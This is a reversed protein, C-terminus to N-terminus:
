QFKCALEWLEYNQELLAKELVKLVCPLKYQNEPKYKKLLCAGAVFMAQRLKEDFDIINGYYYIGLHRLLTIYFTDDHELGLEDSKQIMLLLMWYRQIGKINGVSNQIKSFNKEYWKYDYVVEPVYTFKKCERYLLFQIISDEYWYGTFFRVNEFLTRKYIKGWPYGPLSMINNESSHNNLLEQPYIYEKSSLIKRNKEKVLRYSGIVIDSNDCYANDLLKEIIQNSVIDDCDMFMVYKGVANNLGTNRAGAIGQNKQYIVRCKENKEYKKLITKTEENSGDDVLIIEYQYKTVQYVMSDLTAELIDEHNYVPIIVSCDIKVDMPKNDIVPESLKYPLKSELIKIAEEEAINIDGKKRVNVSKLILMLMYCGYLINTLFLTIKESKLYKKLEFYIAQRM